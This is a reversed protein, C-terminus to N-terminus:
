VTEYLKNSNRTKKKKWFDDSDCFAIYEGKASKIGMNRSLGAGLNKENHIVRIRQDLNSLADVFEKKKIDDNILIIEFNTYSQNLISKISEEVYPEKEYYPM